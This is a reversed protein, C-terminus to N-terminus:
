LLTIARGTITLVRQDEGALSVNEVDNDSQVCTLLMVLNESLQLDHRVSVRGLDLEVHWLEAGVQEM